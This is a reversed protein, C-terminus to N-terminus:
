IPNYQDILRLVELSPAMVRIDGYLRPYKGIKNLSRDFNPGVCDLLLKELVTDILYIDFSLMDLNKRDLLYEYIDRTLTKLNYHIEELNEKKLKIDKRDVVKNNKEKVIESKKVKLGDKTEVIAIELRNINDKSKGSVEIASLYPVRKFNNLISLYESPYHAFAVRYNQVINGYAKIRESNCILGLAINDGIDVPELRCLLIEELTKKEM